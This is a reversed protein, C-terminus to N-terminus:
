ENIGKNQSRKGTGKFALGIFCDIEKYEGLRGKYNKIPYTHMGSYKDLISNKFLTTNSKGILIDSSKSELFSQWSEFVKHVPSHDNFDFSVACRTELHEDCFEDLLKVLKEYVSM